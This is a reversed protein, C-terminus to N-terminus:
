LTKGEEAVFLHAQENVWLAGTKHKICSVSHIKGKTGAFNKGPV